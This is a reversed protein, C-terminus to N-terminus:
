RENVTENEAEKSRNLYAYLYIATVLQRSDEENRIWQYMKRSFEMYLQKREESAKKDPELRGLLYAFRALSISEERNRVYALMKYLMSAGKETHEGFYRQLMQFKESIIIKKFTDWQYHNGEGFLAIANKGHTKADDELEGTQRALASVPYKEPFIGIGASITLTGQTFRELADHIDVATEIIENWPGIIFLDDGGSYIIAVNREKPAENEHYFSYVGHKLIDNLNLKFFMSMKRSFTASRSLSVYNQSGDAREFGSVFASGLNDVDARLVGIRKIGEAASAFDRFQNSKYYDGIWLRTAINYGSFLRNKSYCRVLERDSQLRKRVSEESELVLGYNLPLKIDGEKSDRPLVTVFSENQIKQSMTVFAACMPCLNQENLHNLAGCVKCEREYQQAQKHNLDLIERATYRNVKNKSVKKGVSQFLAKYAGDPKNMLVNASCSQMGFAIYLDTGFNELYWQRLEAFLDEIDTKVTQTNPILLYAHGGGSYLLNARSLGIKELICDVIHELMIELYFSKARLTKLANEQPINYLFDQIGSIDMSLLAFFERDYSERGQEFLIKRYDNESKEQLGLYTCGAVAATIKCHDYLSIDRLQSKQTSSPVFSLNGELVSLLSNLYQQTLEITSIGDKLNEVIKGYIEKSYNTVSEKPENAKGNDYILDMEYDYNQNNGNLINFISALPVFKDYGYEDADEIDRRDAGAAVNDAWYTIYALDDKSLAANKLQKGHHFRVQNLIATETIGQEKLFDYGSLSHNRGDNYRYLIKGVDHLLSGITLEISKKDM